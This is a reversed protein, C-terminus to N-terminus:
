EDTLLFSDIMDESFFRKEIGTLRKGVIFLPPSEQMSLFLRFYRSVSISKEEVAFHLNIHLSRSFSSKRYM